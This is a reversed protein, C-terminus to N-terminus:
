TKTQSDINKRSSYKLDTAKQHINRSTGELNARKLTRIMKLAEIEVVLQNKGNEVFRGFKPMIKGSAVTIFDKRDIM